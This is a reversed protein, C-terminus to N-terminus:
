TETARKLLNRGIQLAKEPPTVVACYKNFADETTLPAKGGGIKLRLKPKDVKLEVGTLIVKHKDCWATVKDKVDQYEHLEEPKLSVEVKLQDGARVGSGFLPIGKVSVTLKPKHLTHYHWDTVKPALLGHEIVVVRGKFNDGSRIHYPAGVYEIKGCRQPVHVDGSYIKADYDNLFRIDKDGETFTPSHLATGSEVIAGDATAHMFIYQAETFEILAWDEVPKHTHPLLAVRKGDIVDICPKTIVRINPFWNLFDFFAVSDDLGDHNGRLIIVEDYVGFLLLNVLCDVIRNVLKASHRDKNQTLDGLIFLRKKGKPLLEASEILFPFLGFRYEDAPNDTLHLDSCIIWAAM